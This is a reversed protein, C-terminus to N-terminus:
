GSVAAVLKGLDAARDLTWVAEIVAESDCAPSGDRACSRLKSEIDADSLPRPLSGRANTVEASLTRGDTCDIRVRAAGVPMADDRETTVKERLAVVDPAFVVADSFEKVGVAGCRLAVAACHHISVRADRANAVARDGRALLLADGAVTVAAIDDPRLDHTARLDLCADIVAHM